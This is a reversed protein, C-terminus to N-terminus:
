AIAECNDPIQSTVLLRNHRWWCITFRSLSVRPRHTSIITKITMWHNTIDHLFYFLTHVRAVFQKHVGVRTNNRHKNGSNRLLSHFLCWFLGRKLTYVTLWGLVYMIRHMNQQFYWLIGDTGCILLQCNLRCADTRTNPQTNLFLQGPELSTIFSYEFHYCQFIIVMPALCHAPHSLTATPVLWSVVLSRANNLWNSAM